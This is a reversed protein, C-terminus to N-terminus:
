VKDLTKYRWIWVRRWAKHFLDFLIHYNALESQCVENFVFVFYKSNSGM